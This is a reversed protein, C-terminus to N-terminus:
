SPRPQPLRGLRRDINRLCRERLLFWLAAYIAFHLVFPRYQGLSNPVYTIAPTAQKQIAQLMDIPSLVLVLERIAPSDLHFQSLLPITLATAATWIVLVSVTVVVAILQTRMRLGLGAALWKVIPLYVVLMLGSLLLYVASTPSHWWCEFLILSALPLVLVAMLRDVGALKQELIQRGSLPCTLLVGLTDRSREQSVLSAAFVGVLLVASMWTLELIIVLGREQVAPSASIRIVMALVLVPLEIALLVRTLYRPTGFSRKRTERWRIPERAPLGPRDQLVVIGGAARNLIEFCRDMLRFFPPVSRNATVFARGALVTEAITLCGATSFLCFGAAVAAAVHTVNAAGRLGAAPFTCCVGSCVWPFLLSGVYTAGLAQATTACWASCMIGFAGLELCVFILVLIGLILEPVTVGGFTYTIALLPFSLFVFSLVPTIRSLYKQLVIQRPTLPSLLLLVLTERQREAAIAGATLLPIVVYMAAFQFTLLLAFYTSGRGLTQQASAGVGLNAYFLVGCATFLVLGYAFRIIYTRRQAAQETLDKVLIPLRPSILRLWRDRSM